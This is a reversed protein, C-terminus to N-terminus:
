RVPGLDQSAVAAVCVTQGDPAVVEVAQEQFPGSVAAGADELPCTDDIAPTDAPFSEIHGQSRRTPRRATSHSPAHLAQAGADQDAGVAAIGEHGATETQAPALRTMALPRHHAMELRGRDVVIM